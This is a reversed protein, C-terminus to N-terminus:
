SVDLGLVDALKGRLIEAVKDSLVKAQEAIRSETEAEGEGVEVTFPVEVAYHVDIYEKSDPLFVRAFSNLKMKGEGKTADSDLWYGSKEIVEGKYGLGKLIHKIEHQRNVARPNDVTQTLADWFVKSYGPEGSAVWDFVVTNLTSLDKFVASNPDGLNAALTSRRVAITADPGVAENAILGVLDATQRLIEDRKVLDRQGIEDGKEASLPLEPFESDMSAALMNRIAVLSDNSSPGLTLHILEAPTYQQGQLRSLLVELTSQFEPDVVKEATLDYIGRVEELPQGYAKRVVDVAMADENGGIIDWVIFMAIERDICKLPVNMDLGGLCEEVWVKAYHPKISSAMYIRDPLSEAEVLNAGARAVRIHINASPLGLEREVDEVFSSFAGILKQDLTKPMESM